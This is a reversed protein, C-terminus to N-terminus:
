AYKEFKNLEIIYYGISTRKVNNKLFNMDTFFSEQLSMKNKEIDYSIFLCKDYNNCINFLENYSDSIRYYDKNYFPRANDFVKVFIFTDSSMDMILNKVKNLLYANNFKFSNLYLKQLNTIPRRM